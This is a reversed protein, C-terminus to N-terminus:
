ILNVILILLFFEALVMGTLVNIQFEHNKEGLRLRYIESELKRNLRSLASADSIAQLLPMGADTLKKLLDEYEFSDDM